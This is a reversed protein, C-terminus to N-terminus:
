LSKRRAVVEGKENRVEIEATQTIREELEIKLLPSVTMRSIWTSLHPDVFMYEGRSSRRVCERDMLRQIASLVQQIPLAGYRAMDAPASVNFHAMAMLVKKERAPLANFTDRLHEADNEIGYDHAVRIDEEGIGRKGRAVVLCNKCLWQVYFPHCASIEIIQRVAGDTFRLGIESAPETILKRADDESLPGVKVREFVKYLKSKKPSIIADISTSGSIVYAVHPSAGVWGKMLGLLEKGCRTVIEQFEDIIIIMPIKHKDALECINKFSEKAMELESPEGKELLISIRVLEGVNVDIKRVEDIAALAGEKLARGVRALLGANRKSYAVAVRKSLMRFFDGMTEPYDRFYNILVVVQKRQALEHEVMNLITSKGIRKVGVLAIDQPSRRVQPLVASVIYKAVEDRGYIRDREPDLERGTIWPHSEQM